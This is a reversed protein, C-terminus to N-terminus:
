MWNASYFTSFLSPASSNPTTQSGFCLLLRIQETQEFTEARAVAGQEPAGMSLFLLKTYPNPRVNVPNGGWVLANRLPYRFGNGDTSDYGWVISAGIPLIRLTINGALSRRSLGHLESSLSDITQSSFDENSSAAALFPTIIINWLSSSYKSSATWLLIAATCQFFRM